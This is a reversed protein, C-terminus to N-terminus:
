RPRVPIWVEEESDPSLRDFKEGLIEFHPRHDLHFDSRPLWITFISRFFNAATGPLGKYHFVAYLGEHITLTSFPAPIDAQNQVECAAWKEFMFQPHFNEFYSSDYRQVSYLDSGVIGPLTSREKMFSQWLEPTRNSEISM